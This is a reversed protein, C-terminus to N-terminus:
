RLLQILSIFKTYYNLVHQSSWKKFNKGALSIISGTGKKDDAHAHTCQLNDVIIIYMYLVVHINSKVKSKKKWM